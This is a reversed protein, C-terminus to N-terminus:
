TPDTKSKSKKMENLDSKKKKKCDKTTGNTMKCSNKTM